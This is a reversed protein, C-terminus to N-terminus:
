LVACTTIGSTLSICDPQAKAHITNCPVVGIEGPRVLSAGRSFLTGTTVRALVKDLIILLVVAFRQWSHIENLEHRDLGLKCYEAFNSCLFYIEM